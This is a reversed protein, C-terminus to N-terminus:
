QCAISAPYSELVLCAGDCGACACAAEADDFCHGSVLFECPENGKSDEARGGECAPTSPESPDQPPTEGPEGCGPDLPDGTGPSGQTGGGVPGSTVPADPDSGPDDDSQCFAQAPFSEAIACDELACGACACAAENTAFCLGAAVVQCTDGSAEQVPTGGECASSDGPDGDGPLIIPQERQGLPPTDASGCALGLACLGLSLWSSRFRSLCDHAIPNM